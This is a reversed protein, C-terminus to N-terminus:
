GFIGQESRMQQEREYHAEAAWSSEMHKDVLINYSNQLRLYALVLDDMNLNRPDVKDYM